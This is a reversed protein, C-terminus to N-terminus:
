KDETPSHDHPTAEDRVHRTGQTTPPECPANGGLAPDALM